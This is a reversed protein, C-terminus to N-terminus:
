VTRLADKDRRDLQVAIPVAPAGGLRHRHELGLRLVLTRGEREHGALAAQDDARHALQAIRTDVLLAAAGVQEVRDGALVADGDGLQQEVLESPCWTWARISGGYTPWTGARWGGAM